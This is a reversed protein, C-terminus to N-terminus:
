DINLTVVAGHTREEGYPKVTWGFLSSPNEGAAHMAFGAILDNSVPRDAAIGGVHVDIITRGKNVSIIFM